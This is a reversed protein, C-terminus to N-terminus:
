LFRLLEELHAIEYTVKETHSAKAPNFYVQDMGASRAGIIDTELSDGIMISTGPLAGTLSMSYSFIRSDPKKCGAKESTIVHGFYSKLRSNELKIGQVEEFGNTIIHLMYKPSLYELIEIAYPLLNAKLPALSTYDNGFAVSLENDNIGYLGFAERFRDYRLAEKGIRNNTYDLWLRDNITRYCAIFEDVSTVGRDTLDYKQSLETLTEHSNRDIDWLTKDLDFFIHKYASM